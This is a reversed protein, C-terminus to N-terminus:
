SKAGPRCPKQELRGNGKCGEISGPNLTLGGGEAVRYHPARKDAIAVEM